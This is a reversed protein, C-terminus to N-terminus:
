RFNRLAYTHLNHSIGHLFHLLCRKQGTKEHAWFLQQGHFIGKGCLDYWLYYSNMSWPIQWWTNYVPFQFASSLYINNRHRNLIHSEHTRISRTSTFVRSHYYSPNFIMGDASLLLQFCEMFMFYGVPAAAFVCVCLLYILESIRAQRYTENFIWYLHNPM